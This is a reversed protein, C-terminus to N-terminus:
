SGSIAAIFGGLDQIAALNLPNGAYTLADLNVFKTDPYRAVMLNLFNSGIFGCGGTVMVTKPPNMAAM